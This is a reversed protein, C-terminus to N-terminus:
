SLAPSRPHRIKRLLLDTLVIAVAGKVRGVLSIVTYAFARHSHIGPLLLHVGLTSGDPNPTGLSLNFFHFIRPEEPIEECFLGSLPTGRM